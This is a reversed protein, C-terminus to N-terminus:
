DANTHINEDRRVPVFKACNCILMAGKFSKRMTNATMIRPIVVKLIRRLKNINSKSRIDQLMRHRVHIYNFDAFVNGDRDAPIAREYPFNEDWKMSIGCKGPENGM